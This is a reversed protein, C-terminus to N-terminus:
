GRELKMYIKGLECDISLCVFDGLFKLSVHNIEVVKLGGDSIEVNLFVNDHLDEILGDFSFSIIMFSVFYSNEGCYLVELYYSGDEEKYQICYDDSNLELITGDFMKITNAELSGVDVVSDGEQGFAVSALFVCLICMFIKKM